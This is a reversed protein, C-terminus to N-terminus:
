RQHDDVAAQQQRGDTEMVQWHGQVDATTNLTQKGFAVKVREEADATVWVKVPKERQLVMHSSFVESVKVEARVSFSCALLLM